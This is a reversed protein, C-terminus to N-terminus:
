ASLSTMSLKIETLKQKTDLPFEGNMVWDYYTPEKQLVDIVLKDKHKGFNFVARKHQDYVMRGALDIKNSMALEHLVVMDNQIPFYQLGNKDTLSTNKYLEIQAKLVEYTAETDAEATHANTLERQCYFRYAASLTRPEMLHYIRQVDVILRKSVDFTVGARLFEEVLLPVDFRVLNFGALDSGKLFEAFSKAIQKFTPANAVDKDYIGHLASVELPIPITPNVLHRKRIEEGNPMVKILAVEVIRDRMIDIGTTELDFFVLPNKLHLKM